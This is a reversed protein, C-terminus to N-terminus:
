TVDVDGKVRGCALGIMHNLLTYDQSSYDLDLLTASAIIATKRPPIMIIKDASKKAQFEDILDVFWKIANAEHPLYYFVDREEIDDDSEAM